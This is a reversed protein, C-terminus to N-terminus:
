RSVPARLVLADAGGAYYARRRYLETFGLRDYLRGAAANDARVELFVERCGLDAAAALLASLLATGVGARQAAPAVAIRRVDASEGTVVLVAYGVVRGEQEAVVAARDASDGALEPRVASESWADAGLVAAELEALLPADGPTAPRLKV